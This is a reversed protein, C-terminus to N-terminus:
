FGNIFRMKLLNEKKIKNIKDRAYVNHLELEQNKNDIEKILKDLTDNHYKNHINIYNLFLLSKLSLKPPM